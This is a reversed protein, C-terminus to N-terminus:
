YGLDEDILVVEYEGKMPVMWLIALERCIRDPSSCDHCRGTVACPTNKGLRAANKPAAVNRARDIASALDPTVKNRGVVFYVKKHGYLTGAVRNGVGDINVIEGTEAIGNVSSLYVDCLMAKRLAHEKEFPETKKSHWLVANHRLLRDYIDLAALTMSGGFAVTVGDIEDNLYAAAEEKTAFVSVRYGKKELARTLVSFDM